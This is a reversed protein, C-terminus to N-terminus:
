TDGMAMQLSTAGAIIESLQAIFKHKQEVFAAMAPHTLQSISDPLSFFARSLWPVHKTPNGTTIAFFAANRFTPDFDRPPPRLRRILIANRCRDRDDDSDFISHPITPSLAVM